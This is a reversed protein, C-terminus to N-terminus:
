FWTLEIRMEISKLSSRWYMWFFSILVCNDHCGRKMRCRRRLFDLLTSASSEQTSSARTLLLLLVISQNTLCLYDNRNRSLEFLWLILSACWRVGSRSKRKDFSTLSHHAHREWVRMESCYSSTCSAMSNKYKLDPHLMTNHLLFTPTVELKFAWFTLHTSVLHHVYTWEVEQGERTLLHSHMISVFADQYLSIIHM